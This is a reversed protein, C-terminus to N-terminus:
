ELESLNFLKIANINTIDAIEGIEMKFISSLKEAVIKTYATENRKGRFPHPTLYPADTELMLRETGIETLVKDLGSNKFTAVGGIGLYFGNYSLAKKAQEVSGSFCHFVGRLKSTHVEDLVDFIEQFSDRAHIVIPLNLQKSWEIQEKFAEIQIDLTSKDWYLDIGTEGVAVYKGKILEDKIIALEKQFDSKVSCPHLGMMGMCQHSYDKVTQKLSAISASDINPLLTLAVGQDLARKMCEDRDSDFQELYMHSHTDIIKM